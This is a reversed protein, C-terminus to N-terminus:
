NDGSMDASVDLCLGHVGDTCDTSNTTDTCAADPDCTGALSCLPGATGPGAQCEAGVICKDCKEMAVSWIPTGPTDQAGGAATWDVCTHTSTDCKDNKGSCGSDDVCGVCTATTPDCQNSGSCGTDDKPDCDACRGKRSGTSACAGAQKAQCRTNANA